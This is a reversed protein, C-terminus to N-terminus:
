EGEGGFGFNARPICRNVLGIGRRAAVTAVGGTM